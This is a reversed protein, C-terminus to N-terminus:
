IAGKFPLRWLIPQTRDVLIGYISIFCCKNPFRPLKKQLTCTKRVVHLNETCRAPERAPKSSLTVLQSHNASLVCGFVLGDQGSRGLPQTRSVISSNPQTRRVLELSSDDILFLSNRGLMVAGVSTAMAVLIIAMAILISQLPSFEISRCLARYFWLSSSLVGSDHHYNPELKRM